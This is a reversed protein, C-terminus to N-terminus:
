TLAAQHEGSRWWLEVFSPVDETLSPAASQRPTTMRHTRHICDLV